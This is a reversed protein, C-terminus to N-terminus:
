KLVRKELLSVRRILADFEEQDIKRKLNSKMFDIDEQMVGLRADIASLREEVKGIREEVLVLREEVGGMRVALDGIMETHSDLKRNVDIFQERIAKLGEMHDEHLAGLYRKM